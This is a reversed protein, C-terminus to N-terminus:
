RGWYAIAALHVCRQILEDATETSRRGLGCATAIDVPAGRATEITELLTELSELTPDEHVFGAVLRSGAPLELRGLARYAAANTPSPSSGAAFPLHIYAHPYGFITTPASWAHHAQM